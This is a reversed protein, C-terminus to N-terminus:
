ANPCADSRSGYSPPVPDRKEYDLRAAVEQMYCSAAYYSSRSGTGGPVM